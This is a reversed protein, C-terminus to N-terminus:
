NIVKDIIYLPRKRVQNFTRYIYEGLFGLSILQVGSFFVIAFVISTYGQPINRGMFFCILIYLSYIVGILISLIGLKSIFRIPFESFNFIGSKAIKFYKKLSYYSKGAARQDRQYEYGYQRFGVWSRLGRLYRDEETMKNMIDKVRASMFCFDGSDLPINFNSVSKQVRYYAWYALRMFFGEKRKKRIAYVVDYGEKYKKYFELLLEPPDQLDSDMIMLGETCNLYNMGATVALQHGHNRSLLVARFNPRDRAYDELVKATKDKSGDDVMVVEISFPASEIVKNLRECLLPFVEEDNYLPVLISVQPNNM